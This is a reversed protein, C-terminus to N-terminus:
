SFINYMTNLIEIYCSIFNNIIKELNEMLSGIM